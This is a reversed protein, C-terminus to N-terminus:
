NRLTNEIRQSGFIQTGRVAKHVYLVNQHLVYSNSLSLTLM